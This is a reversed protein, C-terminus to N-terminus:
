INLSRPKTQKSIVSLIEERTEPSIRITLDYNAAFVLTTMDTSIEFHVLLLHNLSYTQIGSVYEITLASGTITVRDYSFRDDPYQYWINLSEELEHLLIKVDEPIDSYAISPLTVDCMNDRSFKPFGPELTYYYEGVQLTFKRVFNDDYISYVWRNCLRIQKNENM